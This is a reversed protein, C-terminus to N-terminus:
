KILLKIEKPLKHISNLYNLLTQLEGEKENEILQLVFSSPLNSILSIAGIVGLILIGAIVVLWFSAGGLDMGEWTGWRSITFYIEFVTLGLFPMICMWSKFKIKWSNHQFTCQSIIEEISRTKIDDILAKEFKKQIEPKILQCYYKNLYLENLIKLFKSTSSDIKKNSFDFNIVEFLEDRKELIVKRALSIEKKLNLTKEDLSDIKESLIEIEKEIKDQKAIIKM